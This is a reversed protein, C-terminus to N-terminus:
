LKTSPSLTGPCVKSATLRQARLHAGRDPGQLKRSVGKIGYPTSCATEVKHRHSVTGVPCVKSATLRQAGLTGTNSGGVGRDSSVGKIGYPTSCVPIKALSPQLTRGPCVKSATLRQARSKEARRGDAGLQVCRQHRLANLVSGAWNWGEVLGPRQVCRQHRLANLVCGLHEPSQNEAQQVCRQHRLANLM